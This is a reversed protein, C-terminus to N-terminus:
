RLAETPDHHAAWEVVVALDNTVHNAMKVMLDPTDFEPVWVVTPKGQGIAFGAELHASRGCPLVLVCAASAELADMDRRFGRRAAPHELGQIWGVFGWSGFDPDVERWNFGESDKFDYVEHGGARLTKVAEPQYDNRWSSAVYIV